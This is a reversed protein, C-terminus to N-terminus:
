SFHTARCNHPFVLFERIATLDVNILICVSTEGNYLLPGTYTDIQYIMQLVFSLRLFFFRYPGLEPEENRDQITIDM